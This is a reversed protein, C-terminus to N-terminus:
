AICQQGTAVVQDLIGLQYAILTGILYEIRREVIHGILSATSIARSSAAVVAEEPTAVGDNM